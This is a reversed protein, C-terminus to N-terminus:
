TSPIDSSSHVVNMHTSESINSSSSWSSQSSPESSYSSSPSSSLSDHRSHSPSYRSIFHHRLIRSPSHRVVTFWSSSQHGRRRNRTANIDITKISASDVVIGTGQVSLLLELIDLHLSRKRHANFHITRTVVSVVIPSIVCVVFISVVVRRTDLQRNREGSQDM